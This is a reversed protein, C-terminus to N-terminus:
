RASVNYKVLKRCGGATTVSLAARGDYQVHHIGRYHVWKRGRAVLSERLAAENPHYRIPYVDLETIKITGKFESVVIRHKVRGFARDAGVRRLADDASRTLRRPRRARGGSRDTKVDDDEDVSECIVDYFSRGTDSVVKSASVLQVARPEGTTPCTTVLISRPVMIAYLLAFTIEGHSTLRAISAITTRYDKHLYETLIGVSSM